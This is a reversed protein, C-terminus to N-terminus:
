KPFGSEFRRPGIEGPEYKLFEQLAKQAAQEIADVMKEYIPRFTEDLCESRGNSYFQAVLKKNKDFIEFHPRPIPGAVPKSTTQPEIIKLKYEDTAYEEFASPIESQRANDMAQYKPHKVM